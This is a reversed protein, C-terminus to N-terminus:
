NDIAVVSWIQVLYQRKRISAQEGIEKFNRRNRVGDM